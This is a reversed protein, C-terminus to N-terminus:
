NHQANHNFFTINIKQENITCFDVMQEGNENSNNEKFRQKIGPKVEKLRVNFNGLLILQVNKKVEM